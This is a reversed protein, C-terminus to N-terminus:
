MRAYGRLSPRANKCLVASMPTQAFTGDPAEVLVGVSATARMLRYLPDAKAGIEAALNQASKPGSELLDPVGLEALAAVAGAIHVGGMLQLIGADPPAQSDTM